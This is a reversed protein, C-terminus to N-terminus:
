ELKKQKIIFYSMLCYTFINWQNEPLAVDKISLFLKLIIWLFVLVKQLDNDAM